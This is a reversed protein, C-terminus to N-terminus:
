TSLRAHSGVLLRAASSEKIEQILLVKMRGEESDTRTDDFSGINQDLFVHLTVLNRDVSPRVMDPM